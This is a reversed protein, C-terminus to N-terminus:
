LHGVAQPSLGFPLGRAGRGPYGACATQGDRGSPRAPGRLPDICRFRGMKGGMCSGIFAQDIRAGAVSEVPHVNDADPPLCVQPTLESIDFVLREEFVADPDSSAQLGADGGFRQLFAATVADPVVIASKVGIDFFHRIGQSLVDERMTKRAQIVRVDDSYPRHDITLVIKEPHEIRDIGMKRMVGRVRPFNHDNCVIVDPSTWLIDGPHVGPKAATRALIKEAITHGM